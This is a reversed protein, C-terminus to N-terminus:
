ARPAGWGAPKWIHMGSGAVSAILGEEMPHWQCSPVLRSAGKTHGHHSFFAGRMDLSVGSTEKHQLKLFDDLHLVTLSCDSESTVSVCGGQCQLGSVAVDSSLAMTKASSPGESISMHSLIGSSSGCVLNAGSICAATVETAELNHHCRPRAARLDICEYGNPGVVVICEDVSYIGIASSISSDMSSLRCGSKVDWLFVRTGVEEISGSGTSVGGLIGCQEHFVLAMATNSGISDGDELRTACSLIGAGNPGGRETDPKWLEVRTSDFGGLAFLIGDSQTGDSLQKLSSVRFDPFGGSFFDLDRGGGGQGLVDAGV